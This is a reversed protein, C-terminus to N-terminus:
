NGSYVPAGATRICTFYEEGLDVLFHCHICYRREDSEHGPEPVWFECGFRTRWPNVLSSPPIWLDGAWLGGDTTELERDTLKEAADEATTHTKKSEAM